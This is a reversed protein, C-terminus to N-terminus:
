QCPPNEARVEVVAASPVMEQIVEELLKIMDSKVIKDHTQGDRALRSIEVIVHETVIHAM